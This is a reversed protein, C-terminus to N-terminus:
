NVLASKEEREREKEGLGERRGEKTGRQICGRSIWGTAHPHTPPGGRERLERPRGSVSAGRRRAAVHRLHAFQRVGRPGCVGSILEKGKGGVVAIQEEVGGWRAPRQLANLSWGRQTMADNIQYINLSHAGFAVVTMDPKGVVFLEAMGEISSAIPPAPDTSTGLKHRSFLFFVTRAGGRGRESSKAAEMISRTM